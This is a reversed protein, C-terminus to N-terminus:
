TYTANHTRNLQLPPQKITITHCYNNVRDRIAHQECRQSCVDFLTYMRTYM